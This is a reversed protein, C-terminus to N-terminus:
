LSDLYHRISRDLYAIAVDERKFMLEGRPGTRYAKIKGRGCWRRVTSPHAGFLLAVDRVTLLTKKSGGDHQPIGSPTGNVM